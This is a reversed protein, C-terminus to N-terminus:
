RKNRIWDTIREALSCKARYLQSASSKENIGLLKAIERHTKKEFIFLNFVTRYGDPLEQIFKQLVKFPVQDVEEPTPDAALDYVEDVDLMERDTKHKRLHQLVNNVMVREMWARLSGEGRWTFKDFSSFITIFGDHLLDQATERNQTYRMCIAYLRGGFQEYLMKRARNDGQKCLNVLENEEM